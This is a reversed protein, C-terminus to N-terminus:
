RWTPRANGRFAVKRGDERRPDCRERRKPGLADLLEMSIHGDGTVHRAFRALVLEAHISCAVGM